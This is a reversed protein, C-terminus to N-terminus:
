FMGVFPKGYSWGFVHDMLLVDQVCSNSEGLKSPNPLPKYVQFVEMWAGHAKEVVGELQLDFISWSAANFLSHWLTIFFVISCIILYLIHSNGSRPASQPTLIHFKSRKEYTEDESKQRNVSALIWANFVICALSLILAGRLLWPLQRHLFERDCISVFLAGVVNGSAM